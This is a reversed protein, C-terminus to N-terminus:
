NQIVNLLIVGNESSLAANILRLISLHQCSPALVINHCPPKDSQPHPLRNWSRGHLVLIIDVRLWWCFANLLSNSKYITLRLGRSILIKILFMFRVSAPPHKLQAVPRSCVSSNAKSSRPARSLPPTLM